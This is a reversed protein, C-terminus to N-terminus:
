SRYRILAGNGVFVLGFTHRGCATSKRARVAGIASRSWSTQRSRQHRKNRDKVAVMCDGTWGFEGATERRENRFVEATRAPLAGSQTPTGLACDAPPFAGSM